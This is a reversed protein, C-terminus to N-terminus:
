SAFSYPPLPGYVVATVEGSRQEFTAVQRRLAEAGDRAILIGVIAAVGDRPCISDRVLARDIALHDVLRVVVQQANRHERERAGRGELFERGTTSPTTKAHERPARWQLTISMEVRDGVVALQDLLGVRRERLAASLSTEDQFVQGFRSPLSPGEDHIRGTIEQHARLEAESSAPVSERRSALAALGADSVAILDDGVM